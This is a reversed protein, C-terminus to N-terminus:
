KYRFILLLINNLYININLIVEKSSILGNDVVREKKIHDPKSITMESNRLQQEKLKATEM